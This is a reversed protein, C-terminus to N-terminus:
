RPVKATWLHSVMDKQRALEHEHGLLSPAVRAAAVRAATLFPM